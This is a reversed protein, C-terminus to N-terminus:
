ACIAPGAHSLKAFGAGDYSGVGGAQGHVEDGLTHGFFELLVPGPGMEEIRRAIQLQHFTM